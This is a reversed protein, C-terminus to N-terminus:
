PGAEPALRGQSTENPRADPEAAGSRGPTLIIVGAPDIHLIGAELELSHEGLEDAYRVQADVTEAILPAHRPWIGITGGDSLRAQVWAVEEIDVLAGVPTLVKLRLSRAM